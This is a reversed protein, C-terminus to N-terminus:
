QAPGSDSNALDSRHVVIYYDGLLIQDYARRLLFSDKYKRYSLGARLPEAWLREKRLVTPELSEVPADPDYAAQAKAASALVLSPRTAFDTLTGRRTRSLELYSSTEQLCWTSSVECPYWAEPMESVCARDAWRSWPVVAVGPRHFPPDMYGLITSIPVVFVVHIPTGLAGCHSDIEVSIRLLAVTPDCSFIAEKDWSEHLIPSPNFRLRIDSYYVRPILEPLALVFDAERVVDGYSQRHENGPYVGVVAVGNSRLPGPDWM